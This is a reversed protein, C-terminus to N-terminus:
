RWAPAEPCYTPNQSIGKLQEGQFWFYNTKSGAYLGTSNKADYRATVRWGYFGEAYRRITCSELVPESVSFDRMSDPNALAGRLYKRITREYEAPAIGVEPHAEVTVGPFGLISCGGVFGLMAALVFSSRALRTM